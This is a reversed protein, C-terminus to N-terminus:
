CSLIKLCYFTIAIRIQKLHGILRCFFAETIRLSASNGGCGCSIYRSIGDCSM